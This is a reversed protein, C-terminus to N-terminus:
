AEAKYQGLAERLRFTGFARWRREAEDVSTSLQVNYEPRASADSLLTEATSKVKQFTTWATEELQALREGTDGIADPTATRIKFFQFAADAVEYATEPHLGEGILRAYLQFIREGEATLQIGPTM